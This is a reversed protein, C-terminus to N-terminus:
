ININRYDQSLLPIIHEASDLEKVIGVARKRNCLCHNETTHIVGCLLELQVNQKYLCLFLVVLGSESPMDREDLDDSSVTLTSATKPLRRNSHAVTILLLSVASPFDTINIKALNKYVLSSVFVPKHEGPSSLSELSGGISDCDNYGSKGSTCLFVYSLQFSIFAALKATLKIVTDDHPTRVAMAPDGTLATM